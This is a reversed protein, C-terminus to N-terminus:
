NAESLFLSIVNEIQKQLLFDFGLSFSHNALFCYFQLQGSSSCGWGKHLSPQKLFVLTLDARDLECLEVESTVKTHSKHFLNQQEGVM